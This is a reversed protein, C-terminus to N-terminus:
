YTDFGENDTLNATQFNFIQCFNSDKNFEFQLCQEGMQNCKSQCAEQNWNGVSEASKQYYPSLLSQSIAYAMDGCIISIREEDSGHVLDFM